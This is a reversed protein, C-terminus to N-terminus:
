KKIVIEPVHIDGIVDPPIQNAILVRSCAPPSPPATSELRGRGGGVAFAYSRGVFPEVMVAEAVMLRCTIFDAFELCSVSESVERPLSGLIHHEQIYIHHLIRYTETRNSYM